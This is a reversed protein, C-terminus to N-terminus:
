LGAFSVLRVGSAELMKGFSPDLLAALERGRPENYRSRRRLEDDPRGPHCMFELTGAGRALEQALLPAFDRGGMTEIGSFREPTVLAGARAGAPAAAALRVALAKAGSVRMRYGRMRVIGLPPCVRTIIHRLRPHAHLHHHSDIHSATVGLTRLRELQAKLEAELEGARARGTSLRLAARALGPFRGGAGVLSAVRGAPLVPEGTTLNLHLGVGLGPNQAALVAAHGAAPATVLLTASTIVGRRYCEIVADNIGETLGFDDANIILRDM